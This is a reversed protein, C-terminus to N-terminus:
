KRIEIKDELRKVTKYEVLGSNTFCGSHHIRFSGSCLYNNEENHAFM